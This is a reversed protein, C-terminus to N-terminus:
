CGPLWERLSLWGVDVYYCDASWGVIWVTVVQWGDVYYCGALLGVMVCLLLWCIMWVTDVMCGALWGCLLLWGLLCYCVSMSDVFYCILLGTQLCGVM